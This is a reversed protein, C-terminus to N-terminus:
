LFVISAPSLDTLMTLYIRLICRQVAAAKINLRELIPLNSASGHLMLLNLVQDRKDLLPLQRREHRHM